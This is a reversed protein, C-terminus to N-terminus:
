PHFDILYLDPGGIGFTSQFVTKTGKNNVLIHPYTSYSGVKRSRHHALRITKGSGDTAVALIEGWYPAWQKEPSDSRTDVSLFVYDPRGSAYALSFPARSPFGLLKRGTGTGLEVAILDGIIHNKYGCLQGITKPSFCAFDNLLLPKAPEIEKWVNGGSALITGM